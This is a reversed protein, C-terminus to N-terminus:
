CLHRMIKDIQYSGTSDIHCGLRKYCAVSGKQLAHFIRQNTPGRGLPQIQGADAARSAEM